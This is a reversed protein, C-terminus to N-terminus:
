GDTRPVAVLGLQRAAALSLIGSDLGQDKQFQRVAARTRADMVGTPRGGFLGRVALARQLSEIFEPTITEACPTEFWTERRERLIQQRTETRYIAPNRVTGDSLVEAPQVLVQETVTEILAPTVHKGWCTGPAAGPPATQTLYAVDPERLSAVIEPPDIVCASLSACVVTGTLFRFM